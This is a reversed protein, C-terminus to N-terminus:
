VSIKEWDAAEMLDPLPWDCAFVFALGRLSEHSSEPSCVINDRHHTKIERDLVLFISLPQPPHSSLFPCNAPSLVPSSGAFVRYGTYEQFPVWGRFSSLWKLYSVMFLKISAIWQLLHKIVRLCFFTNRWIVVGWCPRQPNPPTCHLVSCTPTTGCLYTRM